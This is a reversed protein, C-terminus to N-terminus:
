TNGRSETGPRPARAAGPTPTSPNPEPPALRAPAAPLPVATAQFNVKFLNQPQAVIQAFGDGASAELLLGGSFAFSSFAGIGVSPSLSMLGSNGSPGLPLTITKGLAESFPIDSGGDINLHGSLTAATTNGGFDTFVLNGVFGSIPGSLTFGPKVTIVYTPMLVAKSDSTGGLSAVGVNPFAWAFSVNTGPGSILSPNGFATTDDYEVLYSGADLVASASATSSAVLAAFGILANKIFM